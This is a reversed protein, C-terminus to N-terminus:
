QKARVICQCLRVNVQLFKEACLYQAWSGAIVRRSRRCRRAASCFFWVFMAKHSCPVLYYIATTFQHRICCIEAWPSKRSKAPSWMSRFENQIMPVRSSQVNCIYCIILYLVDSNSHIIICAFVTFSPPNLSRHHCFMCLCCPDHLLTM